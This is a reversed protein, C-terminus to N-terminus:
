SKTNKEGINIGIISGFISSIILITYYLIYKLKFGNGLGLYNFIILFLSFIIGLKLGELFGKKMSKRGIYLGGIFLAMIPIIIKFVATVKDSFVGYYNFISIIFTFLLITALIYVFSIGLNKLYKM